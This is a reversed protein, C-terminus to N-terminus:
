ESPAVGNGQPNAPEGPSNAQILPVSGVAVEGDAGAPAGAPAVVEAAAAEAAPPAVEGTATDDSPGAEQAPAEDGLTSPRRVLERALDVLEDSRREVAARIVNSM